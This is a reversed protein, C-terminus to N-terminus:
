PTLTQPIVNTYEALKCELAITKDAPFHVVAPRKRDVHFGTFEPAEVQLPRPPSYM